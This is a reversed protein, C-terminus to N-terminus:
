LGHRGLWGNFYAAIQDSNKEQMMEHSNGFIGVKELRVLDNAVGAQTLYDSVCHAYTALPSAQGIVVAIPIGALNPLRRVPPAQLWCRMVDPADPTPQPAHVLQTPATVAPAYTIPTLTVGFAPAQSGSPPDTPSLAPEVAIIAKVM